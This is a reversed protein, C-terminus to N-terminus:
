NEPIMAHPQEGGPGTGVTIPQLLCSDPITGQNVRTRIMKTENFPYTVLETGNPSVHCDMRALNAPLNPTTGLWDDPYHQLETGATDALFGITWKGNSLKKVLRASRAGTIQGASRSHRDLGSGMHGLLGSPHVITWGSAPTDTWAIAASGDSIRKMPLWLKPGMPNLHDGEGTNVLEYSTWPPAGGGTGVYLQSEAPDSTRWPAKWIDPDEQTTPTTYVAFDKSPWYRAFGHGNGPGSRTVYDWREGKWYLDDTAALVIRRVDFEDVEPVSLSGLTSDFNGDIYRWAHL